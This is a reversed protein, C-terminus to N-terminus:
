AKNPIALWLINIKRDGIEIEKLGVEDSSDITLDMSLISKLELFTILPANKMEEITVLHNTVVIPVLHIPLKPDIHLSDWLENGVYEKFKDFRQSVWKAKYALETVYKKFQNQTRLEPGGAKLEKCEIVFINNEGSSLVDIDTRNKNEGCLFQSKRRSLLKM